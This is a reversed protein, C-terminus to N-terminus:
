YKLCFLCLLTYEYAKLMLQVLINCKLKKQGRYFRIKVLGTELFCVTEQEM